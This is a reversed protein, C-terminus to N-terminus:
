TGRFFPARSVEDRASLMHPGSLKKGNVFTGNSSGLDELLYSSGSKTVKAHTRSVATFDITWDSNVDRGITVENQALEFEQGPNPGEKVIFKYSNGDAM